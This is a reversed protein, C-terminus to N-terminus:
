VPIMESDLRAQFTNEFVLKTKAAQARVQSCADELDMEVTAQGDMQAELQEIHAELPPRTRSQLQLLEENCRELEVQLHEVELGTQANNCNMEKLKTRAATTKAKQAELEAQAEVRDCEIDAIRHMMERQVLLSGSANGKSAMNTSQPGM